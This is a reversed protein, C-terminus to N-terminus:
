IVISNVISYLKLIWPLGAHHNYIALKGRMLVIRVVNRSGVQSSIVVIFLMGM